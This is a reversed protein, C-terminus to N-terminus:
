TLGPLPMSSLPPLAEQLFENVLEHIREATVDELRLQHRVDGASSNLTIIQFYVAIIQQHRYGWFEIQPNDHDRIQLVLGAKDPVEGGKDISGNAHAAIAKFGNGSRSLERVSENLAPIIVKERLERFYAEFDKEAQEMHELRWKRDKFAGRHQTLLTAMRARNNHDM